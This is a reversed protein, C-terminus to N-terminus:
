MSATRGSLALSCAISSTAALRMSSRGRLLGQAHVLPRAVRAPPLRELVQRAPRRHVDFPQDTAVGPGAAHRDQRVTRGGLEVQAEHGVHRALVRDRLEFRVEGAAAEAVDFHVYAAAVIRGRGRRVRAKQAAVCTYLRVPM